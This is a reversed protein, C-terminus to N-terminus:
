GSFWWPLGLSEKSVNLDGSGEWFITLLCEFAPGLSSYDFHILNFFTTLIHGRFSVSILIIPYLKKRCLLPAKLSFNHINKQKDLIYKYIM